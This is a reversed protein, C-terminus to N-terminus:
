HLVLGHLLVLKTSNGSATGRRAGCLFAAVVHRSAVLYAGASGRADSFWGSAKGRRREAGRGVEEYRCCAVPRGGRRIPISVRGSRWLVREAWNGIVCFRCGGIAWRIGSSSHNGRRSNGATSQRFRCGATRAREAYPSARFVQRLPHSEFGRGTNGLVLKGPGSRLGSPCWEARHINHSCTTVL